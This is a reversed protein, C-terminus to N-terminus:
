LELGLQGTPQGGYQWEKVQETEFYYLVCKVKQYGLQRFRVAYHDLRFKHEPEPPPTKFEILVVADGDFVIRDPKYLYARADLVEKEHEVVVQKTFYHALKPHNMVQELKRRLEPKERESIIGEYVMQRLVKELEPAFAIRALAYHLKRNQQRQVTQTEFDFVNNAHQKIKLRKEWDASTLYDLQYGNDHLKRHQLEQLIGRSLQYCHQGFVWMQKHVLYRYLLHSMNKAQGDPKPAKREDLLDKANGILYLRDMPRTLAVYL